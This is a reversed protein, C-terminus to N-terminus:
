QPRTVGSIWDPLSDGPAWEIELEPSQPLVNQLLKGPHWIAAAQGLFSAWMSFTSGSTILLRSRSLGLMDALGSGLEVRRVNPLSLLGSLEQQTGDSYVDAAVAHGSRERVAQLAEVYWSLPLRSNDIRTMDDYSSQRVFDGRRVHIGIAAAAQERARSLHVDRTMRLLEDRVLAHDNLFPLFKGEMGRFELIKGAQVPVEGAQDEAIRRFRNLVWLKRLGTIYRGTPKFLGGYVRHDYPNVRWNKPKLSPWAPWVMRYGLRASVSLCRAWTFMLNGLGNGGLRFFQLDTTSLRPYSYTIIQQDGPM